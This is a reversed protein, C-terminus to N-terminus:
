LFDARSDFTFSSSFFLSYVPFSNSHSYVRSKCIQQVTLNPNQAKLSKHYHDRFLMWSNMPRPPKKDVKDVVPIWSGANSMDNYVLNLDSLQPVQSSDQLTIWWVHFGNRHLETNLECIFSNCGLLRNLESVFYKLMPVDIKSNDERAKVLVRRDQTTAFHKVLATKGDDATQQWDRSGEPEMFMFPLQELEPTLNLSPHRPHRPAM